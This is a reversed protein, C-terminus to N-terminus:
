EKNTFVVLRSSRSKEAANWEGACTILNLHAKGDSSKFVVAADDDKNYVKIEKVIFTTTEGRLDSVFIKNGPQLKALNDFVAAIDNKWGYHGAMVASGVEGPQPGLNYWAVNNPNESTEMEGAQNIGVYEIPADVAIRPIKLRLPLKSNTVEVTTLDYIPNSVLSNKPTFNLIWIGLFVLAALIVILLLIKKYSIKSSM